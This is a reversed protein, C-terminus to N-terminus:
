NFNRKKQRGPLADQMCFLYNKLDLLPFLSIYDLSIYKHDFIYSFGAIQTKEEELLTLIVINLMRVVDDFTYKKTDIQSGRVMIVRCGNEDREKLPFIYANNYLERIRDDNLTLNSFWQSYQQSHILFNELMKFATANMYKKV